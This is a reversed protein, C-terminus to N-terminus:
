AGNGAAVGLSPSGRMNSSWYFRAKRWPSIRRHLAVQRRIIRVLGGVQFRDSQDCGKV